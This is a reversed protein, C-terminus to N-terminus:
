IKDNVNGFYKIDKADLQEKLSKPINGHIKSDDLDDQYSFIMNISIINKLKELEKYANLENDLTDSEIIAIIKEDEVLEVSCYKINSINKILEQHHITKATILISSIHM